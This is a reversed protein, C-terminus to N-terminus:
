TRPELNPGPFTCVATGARGPGLRWLSLIIWFESGLIYRVKTWFLPSPIGWASCEIKARCGECIECTSEFGLCYVTLGLSWVIFLLCYVIFLLCYVIFGCRNQLNIDGGASCMVKLAEHCAEDSSAGSSHFLATHGAVDRANM